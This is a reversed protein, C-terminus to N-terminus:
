FMQLFHDSSKAQEGPREKYTRKRSGQREQRKNQLRNNQQNTNTFNSDTNLLTVAKVFGRLGRGAKISKQRGTGSVVFEPVQYWSDLFGFGRIEAGSVV